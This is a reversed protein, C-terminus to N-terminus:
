TVVYSFFAGLGSGIGGGVATLVKTAGLAAAGGAGLAAGGGIAIFSLGVVKARYSNNYDEAKRLEEEGGEALEKADYTNDEIINIDEGQLVVINNLDAMMENLREIDQEVQLLEKHREDLDDLDDYEVFNIDDDHLQFLKADKDIGDFMMDSNNFKFNYTM